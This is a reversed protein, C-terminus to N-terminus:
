RGAEAEELRQLLALRMLVDQRWPATAPSRALLAHWVRAAEGYEGERAAAEGTLFDPGPAAPDLRRADAIALEAAPTVLGQAYDILAFALAVRLPASDPQARAGSILIDVANRRQGARAMGDAYILWSRAPTAGTGLLRDRLELREAVFPDPADSAAQPSAPLDPRGTLSYGALGLTLAAALPLLGRTGLGGWWWGAALVAAGMAAIVLLTLAM